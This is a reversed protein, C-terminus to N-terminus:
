YFSPLYLEKVLTAIGFSCLVSWHNYLIVEKTFTTRYYTQTGLPNDIGLETIL